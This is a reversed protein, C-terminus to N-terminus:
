PRVAYVEPQPSAAVVLRTSLRETSESIKAVKGPVSPQDQVIAHMPEASPLAPLYIFFSTGKGRQSTVDIFGGHQQIIGHVQSLGLGTGKHRAKTSFFPEFIHPLEGPRIGEGTDTMSICIWQGPSMEPLPLPRQTSSSLISLGIQLKGGKPMADRANIALNMLAQQLRTKDVMVMTEESECTLLIEIQVSIARQLLDVMETLFANLDVLERKLVSQRSFDLIQATLHAAHQTQQYIIQLCKQNKLSLSPSRLVLQAQLLIVALSNNFDHTIGAALQGVVALRDQQRLREERRKRETIDRVIAQWTEDSLAKISIEVLLSTGDRCLCTWEAVYVQKRELQMQAIIVKEADAPIVLDKLQLGILEARTYGLLQCIARNAEQCAGTWDGVLIGDAADEILQRFREEREKVQTYLSAKQIALGAQAAIGAILEEAQETFIEPQSHGFFLDGIVAAQATLVRVALYSRIPLDDAPTGVGSPDYGYRPDQMIDGFRMSPESQLTDGFLQINQPMLVRMRAFAAPSIGSLTYPQDTEAGQNKHHYFFAGFEAGSLDTTVDTVVQLLKELDLETALSRHIQNLSEVIHTYHQVSESARKHEGIEMQATGNSDYLKRAQRNSRMRVETM